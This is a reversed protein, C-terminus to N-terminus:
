LFKVRGKLAELSVQPTQLASQAHGVVVGM